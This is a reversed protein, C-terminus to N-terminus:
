HDTKASKPASKQKNLSRYSRGDLVLHYAGHQIRDITAAGLLKNPFADQWEVLDLNSTVITSKSEYRKAIIDHLYEDENAKLPKLGFDDIILLDAHNM